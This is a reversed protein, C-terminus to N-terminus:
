HCNSYKLPVVVEADLIDNDNPTSGKSKTKYDFSKRTITKDNNIRNGDNNKEIASDNIEDRYYNWLSRSTLIIKVVNYCIM